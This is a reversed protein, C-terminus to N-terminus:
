TKNKVAWGPDDFGQVLCPHCCIRKLRTITALINMYPIVATESALGELDVGSFRHEALDHRDLIRGDELQLCPRVELSNEENFFLRSLM